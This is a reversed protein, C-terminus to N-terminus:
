VDGEPRVDLGGGRHTHLTCQGRLRADPDARLGYRAALEEMTALITDFWIPQESPPHERTGRPAQFREAM